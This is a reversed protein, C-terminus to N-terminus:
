AAVPGYEKTAFRQNWTAVVIDTHALLNRVTGTDWGSCWVYHIEAAQAMFGDRRHGFPWDGSTYEVVTKWLAVEAVVRGHPAGVDKIHRYAYIGRGYGDTAPAYRDVLRGDVWKSSQHVASVLGSGNFDIRLLKYGYFPDSAPVNKHVKSKMGDFVCM